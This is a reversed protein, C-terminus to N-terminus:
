NYAEIVDNRADEFKLTVSIGRRGLLGERISSHRIVLNCYRSGANSALTSYIFFALMM